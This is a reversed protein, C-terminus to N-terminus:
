DDNFLSLPGERRTTENCCAAALLPTCLTGGIVFGAAAIISNTMMAQPVVGITLSWLAIGNTAGCSFATCLMWASNTQTLRECFSNAPAIPAAPGMTEQAPQILPETGAPTIPGFM